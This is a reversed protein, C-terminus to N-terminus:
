PATGPKDGEPDPERCARMAADASEVLKRLAVTLEASSRVRLALAIGVTAFACALECTRRDDGQRVLARPDLHRVVPEKKLAAAIAAEGDGDFQSAWDERSV